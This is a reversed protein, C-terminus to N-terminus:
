TAKPAATDRKVDNLTAEEYSLPEDVIVGDALAWKILRKLLSRIV